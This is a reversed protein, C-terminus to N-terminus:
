LMAECVKLKWGWFRPVSSMCKAAVRRLTKVEVCMSLTTEHLAYTDAGISALLCNMQCM